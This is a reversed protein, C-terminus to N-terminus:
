REAKNLLYYQRWVAQRRRDNEVSKRWVARQMRFAEQEGNM